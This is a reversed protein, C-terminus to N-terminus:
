STPHEQTTPTSTPVTPVHLASGTRALLSQRVILLWFVGRSTPRAADIPFGGHRLSLAVKCDGDQEYRECWARYYSLLLRRERACAGRRRSRRLSDDALGRGPARADGHACTTRGRRLGRDVFGREGASGRPPRDNGHVSQAPEAARHAGHDAAHQRCRHARCVRKMRRHARTRTCTRRPSSTISRPRRHARTSWARHREIGRPLQAAGTHRGVLDQSVGFLRQPRPRARREVEPERENRRATRTLLFPAAPALNDVSHGSVENSPFAIFNNYQDHAAIMFFENGSAGSVSDARTEASFSYGPWAHAAQTGVQEYYHGPTSLYVPETFAASLDRLDNLGISASGSPVASVARWISYFSITQPTPLDRSSSTWNIAVKGGQDHPIDAVATITPEPHGWYGYTSELRQAYIKDYGSRADDWAFIIAATGDVAIKVDSQYGPGVSVGVGDAAWQAAGYADLRQAYVDTLNTGGVRWDEWTLVAGGNGDPVITDMFQNDFAGCVLVGNREWLTAGMANIRQAYIDLKPGSRFDQWAIIAGNAGDSALVPTQQESAADCILVGDPYWQSVGSGNLRQAFIDMGSGYRSDWWGLIVGGSGDPATRPNIQFGSATCVPVGNVAWQVAGAANVRQAYIDASSPSTRPDGWTIIAGGALDSVIDPYEQNGIAACIAVGNVAWQAVGASNVRRAYIDYNSPGNRGDVWVVIAGGAGDTVIQLADVGAGQTALGVGDATWQVTGAANIRRVYVGGTGPRYDVWAVIAGGAGDSTIVPWSQFDAQTCIPVGNPTWLAVGNANVRQAYIDFSTVSRGDAWVVIGGGAGDPIMEHVYQTQAVNTLLTGNPVWAGFSPGPVILAAMVFGAVLRKM